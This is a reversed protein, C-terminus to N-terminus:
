RGGIAHFAKKGKCRRWYQRKKTTTTTQKKIIAM